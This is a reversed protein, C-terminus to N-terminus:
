LWRYFISENLCDPGVFAITQYLVVALAPQLSLAELFLDEETDPPVVFIKKIIFKHWVAM